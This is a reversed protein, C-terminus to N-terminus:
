MFSLVYGKTNLKKEELNHTYFENRDYIFLKNM